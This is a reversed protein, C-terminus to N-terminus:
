ATVPSARDHDSLPQAARGAPQGVGDAPGRFRRSGAHRGRPSRRGEGGRASGRRGRRQRRRSRVRHRRASQGAEKCSEDLRQEASSASSRSSSPTPVAGAAAATSRRPLRWAAIATLKAGRLRAEDAAWALAQKSGASGDIGVVIKNMAAGQRQRRRLRLATEARCSVSRAAARGTGLRRLPDRRTVAAHDADHPRRGTARRSRSYGGATWQPSRRRLRTAADGRAARVRRRTTRRATGRAVTRGPRRISGSRTCGRTSRTPAREGPHLGNWLEGFRDYDERRCLACPRHGAAFATAEDLFFLETFRGPQMLPGAALRPVRAPVRDMAPRRLAPPDPRGDDHLCGRNGYVLGRAPDSILEGLPTVRNRLPMEGPYARARALRCPLGGGPRDPPPRSKEPMGPLRDIRLVATM